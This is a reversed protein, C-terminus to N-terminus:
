IMMANIVLCSDMYIFVPLRPWSLLFCELGVLLWLYINVELVASVVYGVSIGTSFGVNCMNYGQVKVSVNRLCM